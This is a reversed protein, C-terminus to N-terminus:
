WMEVQGFFEARISERRSGLTEQPDNVDTEPLAACGDM